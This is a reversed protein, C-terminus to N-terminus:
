ATAIDTEMQSQLLFYNLEKSASNPRFLPSFLERNDIGFEIMIYYHIHSDYM